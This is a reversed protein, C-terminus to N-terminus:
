KLTISINGDTVTTGVRSRTTFKNLIPLLIDNYNNLSYNVSKLSSKYVYLHLKYGDLHKAIANYFSIYYPDIVISTDPYDKKIIRSIIENNKLRSEDTNTRRFPLSLTKDSLDIELDLESIYRNTIYKHNELLNDLIQQYNPTSEKRDLYINLLLMTLEYKLPYKIGKTYPSTTIHYKNNVSLKKDTIKIKINPDIYILNLRNSLIKITDKSYNAISKEYIDSYDNFSYIIDLDNWYGSLGIIFTKENLRTNVSHKILKDWTSIGEITLLKEDLKLIDEIFVVDKDNYYNIILKKIINSIKPSPPKNVNKYFINMLKKVLPLIDTKSCNNSIYIINGIPTRYTINNIDTDINLKPLIDTYKINNEITLKNLYNISYDDLINHAAHVSGDSNLTFGIKFNPDYEDLDYNYIIYQYRNKTYTDWMSKSNVICWSTDSGLIKIDDWTLVEVIVINDKEYVIKSDVTKLIQKIKDLDNVPDKSFVTLANFLSNKNKYRSIKSILIEINDKQAVQLVLNSNTLLIEKIYSKQESPLKNVFIKIIMNNKTTQILDLVKEYKLDNINIPNSKSKLDLLEYYLKELENYPINENFLYETFKGIYGLNKSLLVKLKEYDLMKKNIISKSREINENIFNNYTNIRKM